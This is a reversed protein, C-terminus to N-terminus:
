VDDTVPGQDCYHSQRFEHQDNARCPKLLGIPFSKHIHHQNSNSGLDLSYENRQNKVQTIPCPGLWRPTMNTNVHPLSIYQSSLMVKQIIKCRPPQNRAKNAELSQREKGLKTNNTVKAHRDTVAVIRNTQYHM